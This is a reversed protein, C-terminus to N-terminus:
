WGASCCCPFTVAVTQVYAAFRATSSPARRRVAHAIEASLQPWFKFCHGKRSILECCHGRVHALARFGDIKPEYIFDPHDLAEPIRLLRMPYFKM